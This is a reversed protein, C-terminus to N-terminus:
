KVPPKMGTTNLFKTGKGVGKTSTVPKAPTKKGNNNLFGLLGTDGKTSPKPVSVNQPMAHIGLERYCDDVRKTYASAIGAGATSNYHKKWQKAREEVTEGINFEKSLLILRAILAGYLPQNCDNWHLKKMDVGKSKLRKLYIDLGPHSTSDLADDFGVKDIQWAGRGANGSTRITGDQTGLYSETMAIELMFQEGGLAKNDMLLANAKKIAKTIIGHNHKIDSTFVKAEVIFDCFSRINKM